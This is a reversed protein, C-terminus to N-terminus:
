WGQADLGFPVSGHSAIWEADLPFMMRENHVVVTDPNQAKDQRMALKLKAEYDTNARDMLLAFM